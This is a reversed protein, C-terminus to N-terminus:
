ISLSVLLFRFFTANGLFFLKTPDVGPWLKRSLMKFTAATTLATAGTVAITANINDIKNDDNYIKSRNNIDNCRIVKEQQKWCSKNEENLIM